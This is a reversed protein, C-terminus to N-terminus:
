GIRQIDVRVARDAPIPQWSFLRYKLHGYNSVLGLHKVHGAELDAQSYWNEHMYPEFGNYLIVQGPRCSPTIKAAILCDGDDSVLKVQEGNAIGLESAERDNIFVFPEGRHTNLIVNNTMNMSHVSWRNHGSTMVFRRKAGGHAPPEKHTPLEEGAELFWEHDIYFQARRVLTDYPVKDETHWRLPTHIEDPRLTSAQSVGHGVMGWNSFRVQGKERLTDLTTGKPLVGYIANDRVAEDFRKEEDRVAGHLTAVDVLNELSRVNGKRDKFEKIGREKARLEIKEVLRIGIEVDPLSDGAPPVARDCLVFNLHHVSPMSNGLKEYHQAAPLVYDSYLGTTTMRYDCSVIMKLKPWLHQLLLKQGGRQRRLMNGGSEFLVRPEVEEYAKAYSPDWWGKDVAERLFEDFSRKMTPDNNGPNNWREKYGFQHYWLFAPPITNGMGGLEGAAEAVRNQIMEATMTPDDAAALRRMAIMGSILKQAEAQGPGAKRHMFANGDMGIVAWSRTGTGRKGWNGTLGLLLAMAREMLDGHYYKGSNWGIFIKTRRTAVKRALKRINDPHIECIKGATEPDYSELHRRLRAFVPEVQVVTADKLTVMYTGELAPEVGTTALTARPAPTLTETALDWWYFQDERDGESVDSARLFRGNDTRVLLPLDTQEQVFQKQYLGADIIVKCMSLALAADTGVRIPQHYDAHIASPSFDPAVTVVEGGNYRSEALYHYWHINTYVPNAHWILTLDALFWDEMSSVPNFLGWTLHWGPSFDQFEANGDTTPTGLLNSFLRAPGAGVEPTLLTLIAEAGYEEIADLMADAIDTLADDWSVPEFKGEGREGVRKLPTTVRDPSYLCHSWCAGKQCGMPNMDPIGPEIPAALGAQEERVVKGNKAFIRWSCGGPYCDV